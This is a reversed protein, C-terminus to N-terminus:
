NTGGDASRRLERALWAEAIRLERSITAESLGLTEAIEHGTLGGFYRLEIVQAKRSDYRDLSLMAEDLDLVDPQWPGAAGFATDLSVQIAGGGRKASRNRRAHDVLIQRMLHAAVGLFHKRDRWDPQRQGLLRLYAENVLATPPLTHGPAESRLYAIAVRRLEDYIIPTVRDLASNDGEKWAKLLLTVDEVSSIEALSLM